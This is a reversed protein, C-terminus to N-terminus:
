IHILSLIQDLGFQAGPARHAYAITLAAALVAMVRSWLGLTLLAFVLLAFLHVTWLLAPSDIFPLHSWAFHSGSNFPDAFANAFETSIRAKSGFFGTLDITWVLHTYLMMAGALVRILCLGSPDAAQFWFQNWGSVFSRCYSAVASLNLPNM